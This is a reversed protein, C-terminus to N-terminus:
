GFIPVCSAKFDPDLLGLAGLPDLEQIADVFYYRRFPISEQDTLKIRLSPRPDFAQVLVVSDPYLRKYGIAIAQFFFFPFNFVIFVLM